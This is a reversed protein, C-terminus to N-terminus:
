FSIGGFIGGGGRFCDSKKKLNWTQFRIEAPPSPLFYQRLGGWGMNEEGRSCRQFCRSGRATNWLDAWQWMWCGRGRSMKTKWGFLWYPREVHFQLISCYGNGAGRIYNWKSEPSPMQAPIYFFFITCNGEWTLHRRDASLHEPTISFGTWALLFSVSFGFWWWVFFNNWTDLIAAVMMECAWSKNYCILNVPFISKDLAFGFFQM